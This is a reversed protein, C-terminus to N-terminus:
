EVSKRFVSGEEVLMAAEKKIRSVTYSPIKIEKDIIERAVNRMNASDGQTRYLIMLKYLPYFRNPVMHNAHIYFAEADDLSGLHEDNVGMMVHINYTNLYPLVKGFLTNAAAYEGYRSLTVAYNYLFAVDHDMYRNAAEYLGLRREMNMRGSQAAEWIPYGVSQNSIIKGFSFYFWALACTLVWMAWHPLTFIKRTDQSALIGTVIMAVLLTEYRRLPYSFCATVLLAILSGKCIIVVSSSTDSIRFLGGLLGIAILLGVLGYEAAIHLYENFAVESNDSYPVLPSDPHNSFYDAQYDPYRAAFTNYGHGLLPKDAIMGLTSRYILARGNVSGMRYRLLAVTGVVLLAALAFGGFWKVQRNQMWRTCQRKLPTFRWVLYGCGAIVALLATRSQTVLLTASLLLVVGSMLMKIWRQKEAFALGLALPMVLALYIGMIGSNGMVGKLPPPPFLVIQSLSAVAHIVSVAILGYLMMKAGHLRSVSWWILVLAISLYTENDWFRPNVVIVIVLLLAAIDYIRIDWQRNRIFTISICILSLVCFILEKAYGACYPTDPASLFPVSLLVIFLCINM